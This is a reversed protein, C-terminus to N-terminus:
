LAHHYLLDGDGAVSMSIEDEYRLVSTPVAIPLTAFRTTAHLVMM